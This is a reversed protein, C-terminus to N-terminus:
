HIKIGRGMTDEKTDGPDIAQFQGWSIIGGYCSIGVPRPAKQRALHYHTPLSQRSGLGTVAAPSNTVCVLKGLPIMDISFASVEVAM